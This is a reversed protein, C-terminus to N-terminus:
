LGLNGRAAALKLRLEAEERELASGPLIGCGAGCRTKFADWQVNRIAVLCRSLSGPLLLGFPAAFRGRPESDLLPMWHRWGERPSTGVAPTPHLRRVLDEFAVPERPSMRLDTRLHSLIGIRWLRTAGRAVQGLPSLQAELDELVLRHEDREKPDDLMEDPAAGARATGAVAMTHIEAGDDEFLLEPSAGLLGGREDWCGYPALGNPLNAASRLAHERGSEDLGGESSEFVAPVAKKLEGRAVAAQVLAFKEAFAVVDFPSWRRRADHISLHQALGDPSVAAHEPYILWPQSDELYFGPAYFSPRKPDPVHARLPKGWAVIWRDDTWAFLAGCALFQRVQEPELASRRQWTAPSAAEAASPMPLSLRSDPTGGGALGVPFRGSPGLQPTARRHLVGAALDGRRRHRRTGKQRGTEAERARFPPSERPIEERRSEKKGGAELRDEHEKHEKEAHDDTGKKRNFIGQVPPGLKKPAKAVRGTANKPKKRLPM